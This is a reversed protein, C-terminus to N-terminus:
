GWGPNGWAWRHLGKIQMVGVGGGTAYDNIGFSTLDDWGPIINVGVGAEGMGM